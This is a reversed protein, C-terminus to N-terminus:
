HAPPAAPTKAPPTPQTPASDDSDGAPPEPRPLTWSKLIESLVPELRALDQPACKLAVSYIENEPGQIFIMEEVWNHSTAKERYRAKLMQAPQHDVTREQRQLTIFNQGAERMAAMTQEIIGNLGPGEEDGEPSPAVMALTIEYWLARDDKQPPAVVVGNGAFVEGLMTWTPPYKFCFGGNPQCYKKWAAAPKHAPAAAQSAAISALGLVMAM